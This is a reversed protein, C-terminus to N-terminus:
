KHNKLIQIKEELKDIKQQLEKKPELIRRGLIVLFGTIAIVGGASAIILILAIDFM